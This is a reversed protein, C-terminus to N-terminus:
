EDGKVSDLIVKRIRGIECSQIYYIGILESLSLTELHVELEQEAKFENIEKLMPEIKSKDLTIQM